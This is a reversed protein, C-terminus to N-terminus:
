RFNTNMVHVGTATNITDVHARLPQKVNLVCVCACALPRVHVLAVARHM